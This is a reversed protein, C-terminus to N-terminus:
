VCVYYWLSPIIHSTTDDQSWGSICACHMHVLIYLSVVAVFQSDIISWQVVMFHNFKMHSLVIESCIQWDTRNADICVVAHTCALRCQTFCKLSPFASMLSRDQLMQVLVASVSDVHMFIILEDFMLSFNWCLRSSSVTHQLLHHQIRSPYQLTHQRHTGWKSVPLCFHACIHTHRWLAEQFAHAQCCCTQVLWWWQHHSSTWCNHGFIFISPM